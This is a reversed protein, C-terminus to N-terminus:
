KAIRYTREGTETKTSVIKLGCKKSATSLLGRVSHAQWDTADMIEALTAGESRAIPELVKAAKSDAVRSAIAEPKERKQKVAKAAPKKSSKKTTM